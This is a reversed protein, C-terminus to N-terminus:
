RIDLDGHTHTHTYCKSENMGSIQEHPGSDCARGQYVIVVVSIVVVLAPYQSL